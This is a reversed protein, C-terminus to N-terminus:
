LPLIVRFRSGGGPNPRVDVKGGHLEIVQKVWYLGLGSGESTESFENQLRSFKLFLKHVDQKSIGIGNDTVIVAFRKKDAMLRLRIHIAAGEPSYKIANDVLNELVTKFYMPDLRAKRRKLDNSFGITQQKDAVHGKHEDVVEQVIDAM